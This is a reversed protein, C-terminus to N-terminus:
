RRIADEFVESSVASAPGVVDVAVEWLRNRYRMRVMQPVSSVRAGMQYRGGSLHVAGEAFTWDDPEIVPREPVGDASGCAVFMRPERDKGLVAIAVSPSPDDDSRDMAPKAHELDPTIMVGFATSQRRLSQLWAGRSGDLSTWCAVYIADAQEMSEAIMM